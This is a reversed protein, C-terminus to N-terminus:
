PLGALGAAAVPIILVVATFALSRTAATETEACSTADACSPAVQPPKSSFVPRANGLQADPRTHVCSAATNEGIGPAPLM